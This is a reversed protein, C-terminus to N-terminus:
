SRVLSLCLLLSNILTMERFFSVITQPAGREALDAGDCFEASRRVVDFAVNLLRFRTDRTINLGQIALRWLVIPMFYLAAHLHNSALLTVFNEFTFVRFAIADKLQAGPSKPRLCNEISLLAGIEAACIPPLDQHLSVFYRALRNRLCKLFHLFDTVFPYEATPVLHVIDSFELRRGAESLAFESLPRLFEQYANDGDASCAVIFFDHQLCDDRLSKLYHNTEASAKGNTHPVVSVVLNPLGPDLPMLYYVFLHSATETNAEPIEISQRDVDGGAQV